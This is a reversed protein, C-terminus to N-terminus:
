IIQIQEASLSLGYHAGERTTLLHVETPIFAPSRKVALAYLTETLIQPSLGCVAVLLRREFSEPQASM